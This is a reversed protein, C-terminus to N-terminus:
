LGFAGAARLGPRYSNSTRSRPALEGVITKLLTSKGAGNRGLVAVAGHRPAALSVDFLVQSLGYSVCLDRVQLFALESV